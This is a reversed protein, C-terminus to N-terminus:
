RFPVRCQLRSKGCLWGALRYDNMSGSRGARGALWDCLLCDRPLVTYFRVECLTAWAMAILIEVFQPISNMFVPLTVLVWWNMQETLWDLPGIGGMM